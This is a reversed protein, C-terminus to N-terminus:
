LVSRSLKQGRGSQRMCLKHTQERRTSRGICRKLWRVLGPVPLYAWPLDTAAGSADQRLQCVLQEKKKDRRLRIRQLRHVAQWEPQALGLGGVPHMVQERDQRAGSGIEGPGWCALCAWGGCVAPRGGYPMRMFSLM